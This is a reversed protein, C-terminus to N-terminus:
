KAAVEGSGLADTALIPCGDPADIDGHQVLTCLTRWHAAEDNRVNVFVDYLSSLPQPAQEDGRLMAAQFAAQRAFASSLCAVSPLGRAECALVDHM